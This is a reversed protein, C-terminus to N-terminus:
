AAASPASAAGVRRELRAERRTLDELCREDLGSRVYTAELAARAASTVELAASRDRRRHELDKALMIAAQWPAPHARLISELVPEAAAHEGRRRRASALRLGLVYGLEVPTWSGPWVDGDWGGDAELWLGEYLALARDAQGAAELLRAAGFRDLPHAGGGDELLELLHDLLLSLSVVDQRNHAIVERLVGPDGTRLYAFYTEPILFGPIDDGRDRGLVMSEVVPLNCQGLRAKFVRRVPHLLDLHPLRLCDPSRRSLLLRGELVPSDFTRGNYSVLACSAGLDDTVAQLFGGEYAPDPLIYQRLLLGGADRHATALLFVQNGVGGSLGTTETDWFCLGGDHLPADGLGAVLASGALGPRSPPMPWVEELVVYRGGANERVEASLESALRELDADRRPARASPQRGLRELRDRLLM